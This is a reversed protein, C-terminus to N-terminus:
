FDICEEPSLESLRLTEDSAANSYNVMSMVLMFAFILCIYKKMKKEKRDNMVFFVDVSQM